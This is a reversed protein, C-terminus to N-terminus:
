EIIELSMYYLAWKSFAYWNKLKFNFKWNIEIVRLQYKDFTIHQGEHVRFHKKPLYLNDDKWLSLNAIYRKRTVGQEDVYKERDTGGMSLNLIKDQYVSVCGPYVFCINEMGNNETNNANMEASNTHNCAVLCILSICLLFYCFKLKLLM